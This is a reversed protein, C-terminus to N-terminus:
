GERELWGFLRWEAPLTHCESRGELPDDIRTEEPVHNFLEPRDFSLPAYDEVSFHMHLDST